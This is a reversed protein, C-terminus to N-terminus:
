KHHLTIQLDTPRLEGKLDAAIHFSKSRNLHFPELPNLFIFDVKMNMMELVVGVNHM